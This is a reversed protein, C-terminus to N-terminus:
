SVPGRQAICANIEALTEPPLTLKMAGANDIIQAPRKAGCLAVTIDPQALTWAIVLQSVSSGVQGAIRRLQDVLDQNRQWSEGRFIDYNLRRDRPDFQHDRSLHGALLGKMLVWYCVLAINQQHCFTRLETVASQQLMNFYPQIAIVPCVAHFAQAQSLTVNSVAAYRAWGRKLVESVAAASEEIPTTGDPAHLYMVDLYDTGLRQLIQETHKLITARTADLVRERGANWHMGVKSALVAQQRRGQLAQRLIADSQGEYGYSYATDFFNIGADLAAQVTSVSDAASDVISTIGAIPWLGLGVPSVLLDSNGLQRLTM